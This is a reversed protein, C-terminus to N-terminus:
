NCIKGCLDLLDCLTRRSTLNSIVHDVAKTGRMNVDLSREKTRFILHDVCFLKCHSSLYRGLRIDLFQDCRKQVGLTDEQRIM